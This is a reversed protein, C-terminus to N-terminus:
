GGPERPASVAERPGPPPSERRLVAKAFFVCLDLIELHRPVKGLAFDEHSHVAVGRSRVLDIIAQNDDPDAPPHGASALSNAAAYVVADLLEEDLERLWDHGDNVRVGHGYRELGIRLRAQLGEVLDDSM